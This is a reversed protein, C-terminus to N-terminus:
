IVSTYQRVARRDAVPSSLGIRVYAILIPANNLQKYAALSFRIFLSNQGLEIAAKPLLQGM